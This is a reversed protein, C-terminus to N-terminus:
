FKSLVTRKMLTLDPKKGTWIQFSSAGQQVLMGLGHHTRRGQNRARKLLPTWLPSYVIDSVVAARPMLGLSPLGLPRTGNLGVPTTNILLDISPFLLTLEKKRFPIVVIREPYNQCLSRALKRARGITRNAVWIKKAGDKLLADIISRASGGAGLVLIRKGAPKFGTEQRLSRLYGEGDTNYGFIRGGKFLLTNVAGIRRATPDLRDVYRLVAEKHPITVNLGVLGRRHGARLFPGLQRRTVRFPLYLYPLKMASFAANHMAPSLSHGIPDGIIGIIGLGKLEKM